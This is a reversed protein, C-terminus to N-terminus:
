RQGRDTGPRGPDAQAAGRSGGFQPSINRGSERERRYVHALEKHCAQGCPACRYVAEEWQGNMALARDKKAREKDESRSVVM